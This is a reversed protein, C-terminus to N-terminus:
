VSAKMAELERTWNSPRRGMVGIYHLEGVSPNFTRWDYSRYQAPDITMRQQPLCTFYYQGAKNTSGSHVSGSYYQLSRTEGPRAGRSYVEAQYVQDPTPKNGAKYIIEGM